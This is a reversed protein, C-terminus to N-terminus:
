PNLVEQFMTTIFDEEDEKEEKILEPFIEKLMECFEKMFHVPDFDEHEFDHQQCCYECLHTDMETHYPMGEYQRRFEFPEELIKDCNGCPYLDHEQTYKMYEKTFKPYGYENEFCEQCLGFDMNYEDEGFRSECQECEYTEIKDDEAM